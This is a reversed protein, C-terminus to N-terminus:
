YLWAWSKRNIIRSITQQIVGFREALTRQSVIGSLNRICHVDHRTLKANYRSEGLPLTGHRRCDAKNDCSTGWRLNAASDNRPNGDWHCVEMGQPRPGHFTECIMTAVKQTITKGNSRLRLTAYGLKSRTPKLLRWCLTKVCRNRPRWSWVSGNSGVAYGLWRSCHRLEVGEIVPMPPCDAMSQIVANGTVEGQSCGCSTRRGSLIYSAPLKIQNGCDCQCLVLRRREKNSYGLMEILQLHGSRFGSELIVPPRKRTAIKDLSIRTM